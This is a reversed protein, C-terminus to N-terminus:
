LATGKIRKREFRLTNGVYQRTVLGAGEPVTHQDISQEIRDIAEEVAAATHADILPLLKETLEDAQAHTTVYNDALTWVNKRLEDRSKDSATM